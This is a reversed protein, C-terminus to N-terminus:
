NLMKKLFTLRHHHTVGNQLILKMHDKTGYGRNKHWDYAKLKRDNKVLDDLYADRYEKALISACAISLDKDDGKILTEWEVLGLEKEFEPKITFANGDVLLYIDKSSFRQKIRLQKLCNSIARNMALFNAERINMDDIEEVSGLGIGYALSGKEKIWKEAVQRQEPKLKKSDAIRPILHIEEKSLSQLYPIDLIVCASVVPGVFCGRAVEDVGLQFLKNTTPLALNYITKLNSSITKTIRSSM